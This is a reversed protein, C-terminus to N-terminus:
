ERGHARWGHGTDQIWRRLRWHMGINAGMAELHPAIFIPIADLDRLGCRANSPVHTISGHWLRRRERTDHDNLWIKVIFSQSMGMAM